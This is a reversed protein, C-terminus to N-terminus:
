AGGGGAANRRRAATCVPGVPRRFASRAPSNRGFITQTQDRTSVDVLYRPLLQHKRFAAANRALGREDEVGGEIYDFVVKPLKRKALRHLDEINIADDINM